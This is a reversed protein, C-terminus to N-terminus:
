RCRYCRPTNGLYSDPVFCPRHCDVCLDNYQNYSDQDSDYGYGEDSGGDSDYEYESETETDGDSDEEDIDWYLDEIDLANGHRFHPLGPLHVCLLDRTARRPAYRSEDDLYRLGSLRTFVGARYAIFHSHAEAGGPHALPNGWLALERLYPM